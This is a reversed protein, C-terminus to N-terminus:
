RTMMWGWIYGVAGGALASVVKMTIGPNFKEGTILYSLGGSATFLAVFAGLGALLFPLLTDLDFDIQGKRYM